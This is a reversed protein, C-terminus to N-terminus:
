EVTKGCKSCKSITKYADAWFSYRSTIVWDHECKAETTNNTVINEKVINTTNETTDLQVSEAYRDLVSSIGTNSDDYISNAKIVGFATTAALSVTMVAVSIRRTTKSM